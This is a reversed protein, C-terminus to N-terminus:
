HKLQYPVEIRKIKKSQWNLPICQKSDNALFIYGNSIATKVEKIQYTPKPHMPM